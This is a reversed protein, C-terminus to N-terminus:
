QEVVSVNINHKKMLKDHTRKLEASEYYAQPSIQYYRGDKEFRYSVIVNKNLVIEQLNESFRLSNKRGYSFIVIDNGAILLLQNKLLPMFMFIFLVSLLILPFYLILGAIGPIYYINLLIAIFVIVCLVATSRRIPFFIKVEKNM